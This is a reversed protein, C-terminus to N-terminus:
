PRCIECPFGGKKACEQRTLGYDIPNNIKSCIFRHYTLSQNGESDVTQELYYGKKRTLEGGAMAYINLYRDMNKVQNGQLFALSSPEEVLNCWEAYSIRPLEFSYHIDYDFVKSSEKLRNVTVNYENIYNEVADNLRAVITDIKANEFEERSSLCKLLNSQGFQKYVESYQGQKIEGTTLNTVEVYDSLFFRIAYQKHSEIMNWTNLTSIIFKVATDGYKDTYPQNYCIYYGNSDILCLAPVRLILQDQLNSDYVYNLGQHLTGFFKEVALQRKEATDYIYAGGNDVRLSETSVAAQCAKTLHDAYEMSQTEYESDLDVRYSYIFISAVLLSM